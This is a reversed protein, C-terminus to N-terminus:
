YPTKGRIVSGLRFYILRRIKIVLDRGYSSRWFRSHFPTKQRKLVLFSLKVWAGCMRGVFSLFTVVM